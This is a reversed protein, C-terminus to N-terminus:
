GSGLTPRTVGHAGGCVEREPGRLGEGAPIPPRPAILQSAALDRYPDSAHRAAAALAKSRGLSIFEYKYDALM